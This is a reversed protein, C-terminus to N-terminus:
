TCCAAGSCMLSITVATSTTASLSPPIPCVMKRALYGDLWDTISAAVFVTTAWAAASPDPYQVLYVVPPIAVVRLVTLSTPIYMLISNKRREQDGQDVEPNKTGNPISDPQM